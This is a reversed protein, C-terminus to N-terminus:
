GDSDCQVIYYKSKRKVSRSINESIHGRKYSPRIGAKEYVEDFFVPSHLSSLIFAFTRFWLRVQLSQLKMKDFQQGKTVGGVLTCSTGETNVDAHLTEIVNTTSDSVQWVLKPIFSQQWCMAQFAFKSRVKDQV